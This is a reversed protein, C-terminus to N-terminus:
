RVTTRNFAPSFFNAPTFGLVKWGRATLKLQFRMQASRREPMRTVEYPIGDMEIDATASGHDKDATVQLIQYHFNVESYFGFFSRFQEQLSSYGPMAKDFVSIVQNVDQASVGNSLPELVDQVVQDSLSLKDEPSPNPPNSDPAPAPQGSQQQVRPIPYGCRPPFLGPSAHCLGSLLLLLLLEYCIWPKPM